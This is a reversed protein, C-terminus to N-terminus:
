RIGFSEILFDARAESVYHNKHIMASALETTCAAVLLLAVAASLGRHFTRAM